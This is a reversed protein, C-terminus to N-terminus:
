NLNNTYGMDRMLQQSQTIAYKRADSASDGRSLFAAHTSIISQKYFQIHMHNLETAEFEKNTM